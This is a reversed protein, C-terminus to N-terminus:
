KGIKLIHQFISAPREWTAEAWKVAEVFAEKFEPVDKKDINAALVIYDYLHFLEGHSNSNFIRDGYEEIDLIKLAEQFTLGKTASQMLSDITTKETKM